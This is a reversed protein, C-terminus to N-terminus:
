RVLTTKLDLFNSDEEDCDVANWEEIVAAFSGSFVYTQLEISLRVSVDPFIANTLELPFNELRCM